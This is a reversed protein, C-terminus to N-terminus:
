ARYLFVVVMGAHKYIKISADPYWGIFWIADLWDSTDISMRQKGVFVRININM